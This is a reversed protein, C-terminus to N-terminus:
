VEGYETRAIIEDQIPKGLEVWYQTFGAIRVLLSRYREPHAQADRLMRSDVVNFQIHFAGRRLYGRILDLFKKAGDRGKIASPHIKINLQSNQSISHDWGTASEFLAYPGNIDTGPYASMSSDAFTTGTLRGDPTALTAAGMPGHTSVSIQCPYLPKDYLSRYNHCMSCFWREWEYFIEDILILM